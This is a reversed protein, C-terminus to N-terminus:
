FPLNVPDIIFPDKVERDRRLEKMVPVKQIKVAAILPHERRALLFKEAMKANGFLFLRNKRGHLLMELGIDM